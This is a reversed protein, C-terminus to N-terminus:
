CLWPLTVQSDGSHTHPLYEHEWTMSAGALHQVDPVDTFLCSFGSLWQLSCGLVPPVELKAAALCPSPTSICFWWMPGLHWPNLCM